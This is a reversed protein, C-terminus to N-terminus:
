YRAMLIYYLTNHLKTSYCLSLSLLIRSLPALSPLRRVQRTAAAAVDPRHRRRHRARGELLVGDAARRPDSAGESASDDPVHPGAPGM